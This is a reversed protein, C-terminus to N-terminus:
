LTLLSSLHSLYPSPFDKRKQVLGELANTDAVPSVWSHSAPPSAPGAFFHLFHLCSFVSGAEPSQSCGQGTM